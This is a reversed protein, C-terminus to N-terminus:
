KRRGKRNGFLNYNELEKLTPPTIKNKSEKIVRQLLIKIEENETELKKIKKDRNTIKSNLGGKSSALFKKEKLIKEYKDKLAIYGRNSRLKSIKYKYKLKQYKGKTNKSEEILNQNKLNLTNIESDKQKIIGKLRKAERNSSCRMQDIIINQQEWLGKYSTFKISLSEKILDFKLELWDIISRFM